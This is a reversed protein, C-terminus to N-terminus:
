NNGILKEVHKVHASGIIIIIKKDKSRKEELLIQNAMYLNRMNTLFEFAIPYREKLQITFKEEDVNSDIEGMQFETLERAFGEQEEKPIKDFLEQIKLIPMDIPVYRINNELSYELAAKMDSGYDLGKEEAKQKISNSIKNLLSEEPKPEQLVNMVIANIRAECLEIGIIDPSENKLIEEIKGKEMLHNTGILKVSM